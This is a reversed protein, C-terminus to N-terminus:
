KTLIKVRGADKARSYISLAEERTSCSQHRSNDVDSVYGEMELWNKWVGVRLGAIM